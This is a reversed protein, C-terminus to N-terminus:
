YKQLLRLLARDLKYGRFDQYLVDARESNLVGFSGVLNWLAWGWGCEKWLSLSDEAWKLFVAHPTKNFCGWEGVMVGVEAKATRLWPAFTHTLLRERNLTPTTSFFRQIDSEDIAVMAHKVGWERTSPQISIPKKGPREIVIQTFSLWDGETVRLAIRSARQPLTAEYMRDFINQYKHYTPDFVVRKWPGEGPGSELYERWVRQSDAHLELVCRQSVKHVDLQLRTGPPFDGTIVLPARVDPHCPGYLYGGVHPQVPWSPIPMVDGGEMWPSRFLSLNSPTYGRTSQAVQLRKLHPLPTMGWELGDVIILRGPDHERIATALREVVSVYTSESIKHPENILNFSLDTNPIGRYRRAFNAWYMACIDLADPDRWLDKKEPPNNVCYGPARHFNLTVHVAHKRGYEIAKDIEALESEEFRTWDGNKIWCRYDLPLRAYNFGWDSIIQFESEDFPRHYGCQYKNLLNFGRWRPLRQWHPEELVTNQLAVYGMRSIRFAIEESGEGWVRYLTTFSTNM